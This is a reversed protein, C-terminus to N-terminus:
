SELSELKIRIISRAMDAAQGSESGLAALAADYAARAEDRRGAARLVDGKLDDYRATLSPDPAASLRSLAEDHSGEDFLLVALRLRAIDRLMADRSNDAVWELQARANRADGSDVQVAASLLAGLAAYPSSAHREVLQGAADRARAAEGSSAAQQVAFYLSAAEGAQKDQYWRWGQWSVSAVAAAVILATVYKGYQEWWAKIQSLQEQEELDYHAM